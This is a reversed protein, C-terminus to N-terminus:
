ESRVQYQSLALIRQTETQSSILDSLGEVETLDMKGNDFARRSFEGPEAMRFNSLEQLSAICKEIVAMSGHMHLEVMDEGTFSKPGKFCALMAKDILIGNKDFIDANKM